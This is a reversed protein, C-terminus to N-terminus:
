QRFVIKQRIKGYGEQSAIRFWFGKKQTIGMIRGSRHYVQFKKFLRYLKSFLIVKEYDM